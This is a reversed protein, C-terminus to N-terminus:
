CAKAPPSAVLHIKFTDDIKKIVENIEAKYEDSFREIEDYDKEELAMGYEDGDMTFAIGFQDETGSLALAVRGELYYERVMKKMGHCENELLKIEEAFEPSAVKARGAQTIKLM